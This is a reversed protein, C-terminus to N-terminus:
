ACTHSWVWAGVTKMGRCNGGGGGVGVGVDVGSAGKRGGDKKDERVKEGEKQTVPRCSNLLSVLLAPMKAYRRSLKSMDKLLSQQHHVSKNFPLSPLCTQLHPTPSLSFFFVLALRTLRYYAELMAWVM